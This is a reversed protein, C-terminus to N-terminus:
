DPNRIPLVLVRAKIRNAFQNSVDVVNYISQEARSGTQIVPPALRLNCCPTFRMAEVISLAFTGILHRIRNRIADVWGVNQIGYAFMSRWLGYNCGIDARM